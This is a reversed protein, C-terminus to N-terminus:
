RVCEKGHARIGSEGGKRGAAATIEGCFRCVFFASVLLFMGMNEITLAQM